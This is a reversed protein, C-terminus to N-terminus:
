LDKHDLGRGWTQEVFNHRWRSDDEHLDKWELCRKGLEIKEQMHLERRVALRPEPAADPVQGSFLHCRRCLRNVPQFTHQPLPQHWLVVLNFRLRLRLDIFTAVVCTSMSPTPAAAHSLMVLTKPVGSWSSSTSM